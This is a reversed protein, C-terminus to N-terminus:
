AAKREGFGHTIRTNWWQRFNVEDRETLDMDHAIHECLHQAGSLSRPGDPETAQWALEAAAVYDTIFGTCYDRWNTDALPHQRAGWLVRVCRVLKAYGSM